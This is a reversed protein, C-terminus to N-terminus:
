VGPTNANWFRESEPFHTKYPFFAGERLNWWIDEGFSIATGHARSDLWQRCFSTWNAPRHWKGRGARGAERGVPWLPNGLSVWRYTGQCLRSDVQFARRNKRCGLFTQEEKLAWNLYCGQRARSAAEREEPNGTGDKFAQTVAGM